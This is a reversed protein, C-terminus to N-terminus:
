FLLNQAIDDIKKKNEKIWKKTNRILEQIVFERAEEINDIKNLEKFEIAEVNNFSEDNLLNMWDDFKLLKSNILGIENRITTNIADRIGDLSRSSIISGDQLLDNRMGKTFNAINEVLNELAYFRNDIHKKFLDVNGSMNELLFSNNNNQSEQGKVNFNKFQYDKDLDKFREEFKRDLNLITNNLNDNISNQRMDEFRREFRKEMEDIKDFLQNENANKNEFSKNENLKEEIKKEYNQLNNMFNQMMSQMLSQNQKMEMAAFASQIKLNQSEIISSIEEFKKELKKQPSNEREIRENEIRQREEEFYKIKDLLESKLSNSNYFIEEKTIESNNLIENKLIENNQFIDQKLTENNSIISEHIADFNNKLLDVNEYIPGIHGTLSLEISEKIEEKSADFANNLDVTADKLEEINHIISNKIQDSLSDLKVDTDQDNQEIKEFINELKNQINSQQQDIIDVKEYIPDEALIEEDLKSIESELDRSLTTEVEDKLVLPYDFNVELSLTLIDTYNPKYENQLYLINQDQNINNGIENTLTLIEQQNIEENLILIDNNINQLNSITNKQLEDNVRKDLVLTEQNNGSRQKKYNQYDKKLEPNNKLEDKTEEIIDRISDSHDFM